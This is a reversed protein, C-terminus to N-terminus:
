SASPRVITFSDFFRRTEPQSEIGTRGTVGLTYLRNRSWYIRIANVTGNKEVIVFERGATRGLTLKQEGRITNGSAMGDRARDLIVDSSHVTSVREPYDVYTAVYSAGRLQVAAETIPSNGNAGSATTTTVKPTGPMEIKYRGGEPSFATWTQAAAASAFMLLLGVLLVHVRRM